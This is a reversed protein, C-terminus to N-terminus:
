CDIDSFEIKIMENLSDYNIIKNSYLTYITDNNKCPLKIIFTSGEKPKSFVKINGGHAEVLAKTIKLGIGYGEAKRSLSKDVQAFGNSINNLYKEEIGIGTDTVAIEVSDDKVNMNVFVRAGIDSFKVSNSLVNILVREIREIDVIMYKEETNTDFIFEIQKDKIIKSVNQVVDEVVEVINIYNYNLNLLSAEIKHSDLINNILKMIRFSNQKISNINSAIKDNFESEENNQLYLEILQAASYIINMPTKLEHSANIIMEDNIKVINEINIENNIDVALENIDRKTKSSANFNITEKFPMVYGNKFKHM